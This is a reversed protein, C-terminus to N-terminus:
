RTAGHSLVTCSLRPCDNAWATVARIDAEGFLLIADLRRRSARRALSELREAFPNEEAM